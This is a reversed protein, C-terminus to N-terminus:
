NTQFEISMLMHDLFGFRESTVVEFGEEQALMHSEYDWDVELKINRGSFEDVGILIFYM